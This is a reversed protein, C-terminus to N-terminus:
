RRQACGLETDLRHPFPNDCSADQEIDGAREVNSVHSQAFADHRLVQFCCLSALTNGHPGSVRDHERGAETTVTTLM